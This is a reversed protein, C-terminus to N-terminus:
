TGRWFRPSTGSPSRLNHKRDKPTKWEEQRKDIESTPVRLPTENLQFKDFEENEGRNQGRWFNCSSELEIWLM